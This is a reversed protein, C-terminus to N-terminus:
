FNAYFFPNSERAIIRLLAYSALSLLILFFILFYRPFIRLLENRRFINGILKMYFNDLSM